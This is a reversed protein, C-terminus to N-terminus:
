GIWDAWFEPLHRWGMLASVVVVSLLFMVLIAAAVQKVRPDVLMWDMGAFVRRLWQPGMQNRYRNGLLSTLWALLIFLAVLLLLGTVPAELTELLIRSWAEWDNGKGLMACVKGVLIWLLGTTLVLVLLSGALLSAALILLM